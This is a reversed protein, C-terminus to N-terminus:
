LTNVRIVSWKAVLIPIRAQFLVQEHLMVTVNTGAYALLMDLPVGFVTGSSDSPGMYLCPRFHHTSHSQGSRTTSRLSNLENWTSPTHNIESNPKSVITALDSLTMHIHQLADIINM